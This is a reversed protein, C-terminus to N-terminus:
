GKITGQINFTHAILGTLDDTFRAVFSWGPYLRMPEGAKDRYFSTM